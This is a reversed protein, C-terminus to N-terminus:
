RQEHRDERAIRAEVCRAVIEQSAARTERVKEHLAHAHLLFAEREYRARLLAEHEDPSPEVHSGESM